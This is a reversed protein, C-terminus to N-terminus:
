YIFLYFPSHTPPPTLNKLNNWNSGLITGFQKCCICVTDVIGAIDLSVVIDVIDIDVIDIDVIDIDIDVIDIDVIDIDVVNVIEVM